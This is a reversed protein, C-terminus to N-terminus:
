RSVIFKRSQVGYPTELTAIYVGPALGYQSPYLKFSHRGTEYKVGDIPRVLERGNIDTITMSVVAPDSLEFDFNSFDIAPNPAAPYLLLAPSAAHTETALPLLMSETFCSSWAQQTAQGGVWFLCIKGGSADMGMYDSHISGRTSIQQSIRTNTFTQGGDVSWALYYHLSDDQSDTNTRADLYSIFVWGNAPDVAVTPVVQNRTTMDDNVRQTTWTQGGDTSRALFVDANNVGNRVDDWVCYLNGNHPGGSVDCALSTFQASFSISHNIYDYYDNWPQVNVDVIAPALPWTNGGDTSKKFRIQNPYAGGWSVGIEGSPGVALGTGIPPIPQANETYLTDRPVWTQGQDATYNVFLYGPTGRRTWACYVRGNYPSSPVRDCVLWNKDEIYGADGFSTESIWTQGYNDSRLQRFLYQGDLSQFYYRGATDTALAVDGILSTSAFPSVNARTWTLGGDSSRYTIDPNTAALINSTDNGSIIITCEGDMASNDVLVNPLTQAQIWTGGALLVFVALFNKLLPTQM